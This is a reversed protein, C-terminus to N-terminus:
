LFPIDGGGGGGGPSVGTQTILLTAFSGNISVTVSGTRSAQSSNNAYSVTFNGDGDGNGSFIEINLWSANDTVTWSTNSNVIVLILGNVATVTRTTPFISVIEAVAGYNRFNQLSNELGKYSPDFQSSNAELFCEVLSTQTGPIENIVDLLSFNYNNPVAM